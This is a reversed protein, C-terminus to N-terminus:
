KQDFLPEKEVSERFDPHLAVQIPSSDLLTIERSIVGKSVKRLIPIYPGRFRWFTVSFPCEETNQSPFPNEFTAVSLPLDRSFPWFLASFLCNHAKRSGLLSVKELIPM